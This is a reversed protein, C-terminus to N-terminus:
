YYKSKDIINYQLNNKKDKSCFYTCCEINTNHRFFENNNTQQLM